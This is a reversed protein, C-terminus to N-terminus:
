MMQVEGLWRGVGTDLGEVGHNEVEGVVAGKEAALSKFADVSGGVGFYLRKAALMAKGMKVKGLIQVLTETFADLSDPSYITESALVLLSMSPSTPIRSVLSPSWAGSILTLIIGQSALHTKFSTLLSPTLDLDGSPTSIPSPSTAKAWILLINPLTVLRLVSANYDALTFYLPLSQQLAHHFLILTPLATGCGLEVVHDVRCLDDLDKRPGRDLLLTALDLSCEWTKFGGEYINTEIDTTSDLGAITPNTSATSPNDDEAMLQMRIDFLERRPLELTRNSRPSSITITNYSIKSPLSNLVEDLDLTEAPAQPLQSSSAPATHSGGHHAVSENSEEASNEIDDGHFGFTFSGSM